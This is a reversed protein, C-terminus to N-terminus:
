IHFINFHILIILFLLEKKLNKQMNENYIRSFTIGIYLIMFITLFSTIIAFIQEYIIGNYEKAFTLTLIYNFINLYKGFFNLNQLDHREFWTQESFNYNNVIVVWLCSLSNFLFFGQLLALLWFFNIKLKPFNLFYAIEEFSFLLFCLSFFDNISIVYSLFTIIRLFDIWNKYNVIENNNKALCVNSFLQVAMIGLFIVDLSIFTQPLAKFAVNIPLAITYFALLILFVLKFSKKTLTIIPQNLYEALNFEIKEKRLKIFNVFHRRIKEKFTINKAQDPYGEHYFSLDNIFLQLRKSMTGLFDVYVENKQKMKGFMMFNKSILQSNKMNLRNRAKAYFGSPRMKMENDIVQDKKMLELQSYFMPFSINIENNSNDRRKEYPEDSRYTKTIFGSRSSKSKPGREILSPLQNQVLNIHDNNNFNNNIFSHSSKHDSFPSSHSTPNSKSKYSIANSTDYKDSKISKM